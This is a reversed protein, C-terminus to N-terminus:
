CAGKVEDYSYSYRTETCVANKEASDFGNGM